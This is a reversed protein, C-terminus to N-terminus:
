VMALEPNPLSGPDVAEGKFWWEWVARRGKLSRSQGKL